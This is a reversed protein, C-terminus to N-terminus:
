PSGGGRHALGTVRGLDEGGSGTGPLDDGQGRLGWTVSGLALMLAATRFGSKGWKSIM